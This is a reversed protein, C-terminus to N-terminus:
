KRTEGRMAGGVYGGSPRPELLRRWTVAFRHARCHTIIVGDQRGPDHRFISFNVTEGGAEFQALKGRIVTTLAYPVIRGAPIVILKVAPATANPARISPITPAASAWIPGPPGGATPTISVTFRGIVSDLSNRPRM